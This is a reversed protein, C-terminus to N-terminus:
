GDECLRAIVETIPQNTGGQHMNLFGRPAHVVKWAVRGKVLPLIATVAHEDRSAAVVLRRQDSEGLNRLLQNRAPRVNM